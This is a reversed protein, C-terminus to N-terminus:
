SPSQEARRLRGLALALIVVFLMLNAQIELSFDVLSHLAMQVIVALGLVSVAYNTRRRRIIRVLKVMAVALLLMPVSGMILGAEVWWALYSSHALEWVLASTVPPQHALEFAVRFGDIGVGLWPAETIMEITQMYLETRSDGDAVTFLAREALDAGLTLAAAAAAVAAIVSARFLAKFPQDHWKLAMVLYAVWAAFFPSVVGMRSQTALLTIAIVFVMLWLLALELNKESLLTQGRSNRTHPRHARQLIMCIGAILGMGLFAAFSNRNVFTGTAAGHYAIKEGWLVFDDLFILAFLAWIAHLLVIFFLGWAMLSVREARTSIEFVLVFLALVGIMRMGALLTADPAVSGLPLTFGLFSTTMGTLSLLYQLFAFGPLAMGALIFRWEQGSTLPRLPEVIRMAIMYVALVLCIILSWLLWFVPWVSAMPIPALAICGLVFWATADNIARGKRTLGAASPPTGKLERDEFVLPSRRTQPTPPSTHGRQNPPRRPKDFNIM